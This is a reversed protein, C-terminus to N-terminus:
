HLLHANAFQRVREDKKNDFKTTRGGHNDAKKSQSM